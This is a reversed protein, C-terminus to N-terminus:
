GGASSRRPSRALPTPAASTRTGTTSRSSRAIWSASSRSGPASPRPSSQCRELRRDALAALVVGLTVAAAAALLLRPGTAAILSGAVAAGVSGAAVKLGGMSVFVQARAEPPAYRGRAAFTATVFSANALGALTASPVRM